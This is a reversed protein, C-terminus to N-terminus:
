YWKGFLTAPSADWAPFFSYFFDRYGINIPHLYGSSDQNLLPYGNYIAAGSLLLAAGLLIIAAWLKESGAQTAQRMMPADLGCRVNDEILLEARGLGQRSSFSM